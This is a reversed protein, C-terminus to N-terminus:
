EGGPPGWMNAGWRRKRRQASPGVPRTRGKGTALAMSVATHILRSDPGVEPEVVESRTPQWRRKAYLAM